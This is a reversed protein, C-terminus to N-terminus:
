PDPLIDPHLSLGAITTVSKRGLDDTMGYPQVVAEGQAESIDLIQQRFAADDHGIFRGSVPTLLKPLAFSPVM